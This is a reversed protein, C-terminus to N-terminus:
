SEGWPILFAYGFKYVEHELEGKLVDPVVDVKTGRVPANLVSGEKILWVSKRRFTIGTNLQSWGRRLTLEYYSDKLSLVKMDEESPYALSLLWYKQPKEPIELEVSDEIFDFIGYGDTKKGGLGEEGLIRLVAELNKFIEENAGEALFYLGGKFFRVGGFMFYNADSTVRDISVMPMISEEFIEKLRYFDSRITDRLLDFDSNNTMLVRISDLSIFASKKFKKAEDYPMVNMLESFGLKPKPLFYTVKGSDEHFPFASSIRVEGEEIASKLKSNVLLSINYLAGYLVDSPVHRLVEEKDVGYAGVHLPGRFYLRFTHFKKRM